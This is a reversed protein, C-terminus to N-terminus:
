IRCSEKPAIGLEALLDKSPKLKFSKMFNESYLM